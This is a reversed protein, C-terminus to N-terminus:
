KENIGTGPEELDWISIASGAPVLRCYEQGKISIIYFKGYKYRDNVFCSSKASFGLRLCLYLFDNCLEKSVTSYKVHTGVKCGDGRM